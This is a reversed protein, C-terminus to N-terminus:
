GFIKFLKELLPVKGHKLFAVTMYILFIILIIIAAGLAIITTNM